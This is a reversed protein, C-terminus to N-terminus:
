VPRGAAVRNLLVPGHLDVQMMRILRGVGMSRASLHYWSVVGGGERSTVGADPSCRRGLRTPYHLDHLGVRAQANKWADVIATMVKVDLSVWVLKSLALCLM